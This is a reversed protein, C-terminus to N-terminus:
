PARQWRRLLSLARSCATATHFEILGGLTRAAAPMQRSLAADCRQGVSDIIRQQGAQVLAILDALGDAAFRRQFALSLRAVRNSMAAAGYFSATPGTTGDNALQLIMTNWVIMDVLVTAASLHSRSPGPIAVAHRYRSPPIAMMAAQFRGHSAHLTRLLAQKPTLLTMWGDVGTVATM